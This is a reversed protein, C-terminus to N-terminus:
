RVLLVPVDVEDLLMLMAEEEFLAIRGPLVLTGGAEAQITRTLKPVSSETLARYQVELDQDKQWAEVAAHLEKARGMGDALILVTLTEGDAVMTAATELAKHGLPSGDYVVLVPPELRTGHQLILTMGPAERLIARVTSGLRRRPVVSWGSRGLIVVDTGTAARLVEPVVAGRSVRFTCSIESHRTASSFIRRIRVTQARFQREMEATDLRRRTASFSGLEHAFPLEALRLLNIDEVFLAELEAQFRGALDVAAELAAVSHPSADLAVLVRRITLDREESM